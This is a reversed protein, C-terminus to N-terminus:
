NFIFTIELNSFEATVYDQRLVRYTNGGIVIDSLYQFDSVIQEQAVTSVQEVVGLSALHVFYVYEGGPNSFTCSIADPDDLDIFFNGSELNNPDLSVDDTGWLYYDPQGIPCQTTDEDGDVWRIDGYGESNPNSDREQIEVVGTNLDSGDKKCRIRGTPMWSPDLTNESEWGGPPLEESSIEFFTADEIYNKIENFTARLLMFKKGPLAEFEFRTDLTAGPAKITGELIRTPRFYQNMISKTTILGLSSVGYENDITDWFNKGGSVNTPVHIGSIHEDTLTDGNLVEIPDVELSYERDNEYLYYDEEPLDAPSPIRGLVLGTILPNGLWGGRAKMEEWAPAFLGRPSNPLSGAMSSTLDILYQNLKPRDQKANGNYKVIGMIDFILNGDDPLKAINSSFYRWKFEDAQAKTEGLMYYADYVFFLDNVADGMGNLMMNYFYNDAYNSGTDKRWELYSYGAETYRNNILFYRDGSNAVFICRFALAVGRTSSGPFSPQFKAWFSFTLNDGKVVPIPESYRISSWPRVSHDIKNDSQGADQALKIATDIGGPSESSVDVPMVASHWHNGEKWRFWDQPAALKSTNSFNAFNANTLLNIPDDGKRIIRFKYNMRFAGYVDDMRMIHDNGIMAKAVTSCPITDEQNIIERGLYVSLTNYKRWYRQTAGTGYTADANVRKIRWVGGSQYVKAGFVYCLNELVQACNFAENANAWYPVNPRDSDEIYTKVNAYSTALPDANRTDGTKTMSREYVDVCTWLDLDLGLKRLIETAMLVWPFLFGDNYTLDQTGYTEGPAYTFPIDELLSLGDAAELSAYYLGGSFEYGFGNPIVFGTWVLVSNVYHEIKFEREDATWLDEFDVGNGTGFVLAVTAKSPRIPEFKFDGSNEYSLSFPVEQGEVETSDGVYGDQLISIRCVQDLTNCYQHYYKEVYDAM